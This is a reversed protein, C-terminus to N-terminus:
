KEENLAKGARRKLETRWWYAGAGEPRPVFEGLEGLAWRIARRLKALQKEQATM